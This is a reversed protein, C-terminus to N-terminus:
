RVDGRRDCRDRMDVDDHWRVHVHLHVCRCWCLLLVVVPTYMYPDHRQYLTDCWVHLVSAVDLDCANTSSIAIVGGVRVDDCGRTMAHM